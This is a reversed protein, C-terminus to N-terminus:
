VKQLHGSGGRVEVGAVARGGWAVGEGYHALRWLQEEGGHHNNDGRVEVGVLAARDQLDM